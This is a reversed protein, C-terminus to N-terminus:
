FRRLRWLGDADLQCWVPFSYTQGDQDRFMKCQAGGLGIEVLQITTMIQDIDTTWLVPLLQNFADQYAARTDSHIM